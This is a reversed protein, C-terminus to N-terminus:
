SARREIQYGVRRQVEWFKLSKSRGGRCLLQDPDMPSTESKNAEKAEFVITTDSRRWLNKLNLSGRPVVASLM